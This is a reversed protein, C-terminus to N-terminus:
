SEPACLRAVAMLIEQQKETARTFRENKQLASAHQFGAITMDEASTGYRHEVAASALAQVMQVAIEARWPKEPGKAGSFAVLADKHYLILKDLMLEQMEVIESSKLKKGKRDEPGASSATSRTMPVCSMMANRLMMSSEVGSQEWAAKVEGDASYEDYCLQMETQSLDAVEEGLSAAEAMSQDSFEEFRRYAVVIDCRRARYDDHLTQAFAKAKRTSEGLHQLLRVFEAKEVRTQAAGILHQMMNALQETCRTFDANQQLAEEYLIVAQEVDECRVSLQQEVAVSVLLEATTECGKGTFSRRVEQPLQLFEELVKQMETVMLEHIQIIKSMNISQAREPDGKGMPHLLRQAATMVEEDEEYTSLMRQFATESIGRDELPEQPLGLELIKKHGDVFSLRKRKKKKDGNEKALRRALVSVEQQVIGQVRVTEDLVTLIEARSLAAGGQAGNKAGNQSGNKASASTDAAEQAALEAQEQQVQALKLTAQADPIIGAGVVGFRHLKESLLQVEM